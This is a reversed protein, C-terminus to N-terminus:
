RSATPSPRGHSNTPESPRVGRDWRGCSSRPSIARPWRRRSRSASRPRRKRELPAVYAFPSSPRGPCAAPQRCQRHLPQPPEQDLLYAGFGEAMAEDYTEFAEEKPAIEGAIRRDGILAEFGFVARRSRSRSATSQRSRCRRTTSTASPSRSPPPPAARWSTSRSPRTLPVRETRTPKRRGPKTAVLGTVMTAESTM